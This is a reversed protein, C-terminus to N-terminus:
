NEEQNEPIIINEKKNEEPKEFTLNDKVESINLDKSTGQVIEIKKRKENNEEECGHSLRYIYM